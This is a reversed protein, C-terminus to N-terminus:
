PAKRRARFGALLKATDPKSRHRRDTPIESVIQVDIEGLKAVRDRWEERHRVDGALFLVPAGTPDVAYAAGSVGPWLRPLSDHSRWGIAAQGSLDNRLVPGPPDGHVQRWPTAQFEASGEAWARARVM